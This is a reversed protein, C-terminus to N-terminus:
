KGPLSRQYSLMLINKLEEETPLVLKYQSAFIQTNGKPLMYSVQAENKEECLILGITPKQTDTKIERDYYNVYMQM